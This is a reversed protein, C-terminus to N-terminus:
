LTINVYYNTGPITCSGSTNYYSDILVGVLCGTTAGTPYATAGVPINITTFGGASYRIAYPTGSTGVCTYTQSSTNTVSYLVNFSNDLVEIFTSCGVSNLVNVTIQAKAKFTCAATIIFLFAIKLILKKNM